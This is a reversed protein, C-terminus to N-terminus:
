KIRNLLEAVVEDISMTTTDFEYADDAKKLPAFARTSDNKDRTVIDTLVDDYSVSQGKEQLEKFRRNAREEATATIFFKYNADPLVYTGIDRGDLICDNNKAIERQLEVLKLRVSPIASVDSAAMSVSHERIFPTVNEGDLFINQVEDVYKIEVSTSPLIAEVASIDRTNIGLKLAKLGIARYMAGTDLYLIGLQKAVIKAATSKGAGAPGDIAINKM